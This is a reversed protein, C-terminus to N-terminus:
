HHAASRHGSTHHTSRHHGPTHNNSRHPSGVRPTSHLNAASHVNASSSHSDANKIPSKSSVSRHSVRIKAEKRKVDLIDVLASMRETVQDAQLRSLKRRIVDTSPPNVPLSLSENVSSALEVLAFLEYRAMKQELPSTKDSNAPANLPRFVDAPVDQHRVALGYSARAVLVSDARTSRPLTWLLQLQDDHDVLDAQLPGSSAPDVSVAVQSAIFDSLLATCCDTNVIIPAREAGVNVWIFTAM